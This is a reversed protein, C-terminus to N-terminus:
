SKRAIADILDGVNSLKAIEATSLRCRFEKEIAVILNIHTISDWDEVDAATMERRLVISPNDFVQCFVRTLSPVIQEPDM